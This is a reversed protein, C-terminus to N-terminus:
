PQMGRLYPYGNNISPSIAWITDFNFGTFSSQQSMQANTLINGYGSGRGSLYYCNIVSSSSAVGAIGGASNFTNARIPNNVTGTNYCNKIEVKPPLGAADGVIGGSYAFSGNRSSASVTGKNYSNEIILNESNYGVIGGAYSNLSEATVTGENYCKSIKNSGGYARGLIGGSQVYYMADSSINRITAKNVCNTIESNYSQGAIGGASAYLQNIAINGSVTLNHINSNRIYGFLGVAGYGNQSNANVNIGSVSYGNGNFIGEFATASTGIPVWNGWSSLNIDNMLIYKGTLSNRVNNLDQPTYIGTYGAPVEKLHVSGGNGTELYGMRTLAGVVSSMANVVNYEKTDYYGKARFPSYGCVWDKVEAATFNNGKISWVLAAVGTVMPAAQSTGDMAFKGYNGTLGGMPITSFIDRGPAVVNVNDGYNSFDTLTYGNNPKEIAGVIIVHSLIDNATVSTVGIENLGEQVSQVEMSAFFGSQRANRAKNGACMVFIFDDRGIDQITEYIWQTLDRSFWEIEGDTLNEETNSMSFNIVKAGNDLLEYFVDKSMSVQINKKEQSKTQMIDVGLLNANWVIGTIGKENNATAGIIGAVHTGHTEKSNVDSNLVNIKLDEHETDFGEDAIGITIKSFWDNFDWASPAHIAELWWNLGDPGTEDWDTGLAGQFTDRWPDNPIANTTVSDYPIVLDYMASSVMDDKQLEECIKKLNEKNTPQIKIQIFPRAQGVILGGISNAVRLMEETTAEKKFAVLIINNVYGLNDDPFEYIMNSEESEYYTTPIIYPEDNNEFWVRVTNTADVNWFKVTNATDFCARGDDFDNNEPLTWGAVFRIIILFVRQVWHLNKNRVNLTARYTFETSQNPELSTGDIALVSERGTPMLDTFMAKASINDVTENSINTIKVTFTAIALKSYYKERSPEIEVQLLSQENNAPNVPASFAPEMNLFFTPVQVFLLQLAVCFMVVAM